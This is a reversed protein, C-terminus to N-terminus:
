CVAKYYCPTGAFTTNADAETYDVVPASWTTSRVLFTYGPNNGGTVLYHNNSIYGCHGSYTVKAGYPRTGTITYSGDSIYPSDSDLVIDERRAWAYAYCNNNQYGNSVYMATDNFVLYNHVVNPPNMPNSNYKKATVATGNPTYITLTTYAGANYLLTNENTMGEELINDGFFVQSMENWLNNESDMTNYFFFSQNTKSFLDSKGKEKYLESAKALVSLREVSSLGEFTENLSLFCEEFYNRYYDNFDKKALKENDVRLEKHIGDKSQIYTYTAYFDTRVRSKMYDDYVVKVFDDRSFLEHTGNFVKTYNNMASIFDEDFYFEGNQPYNVVIELLEETSVNELEDDNIQLYGENDEHMIDKYEDVVGYYEVAYLDLEASENAIANVRLQSNVLILVSLCSILRRVM